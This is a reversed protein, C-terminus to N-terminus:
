RHIGLEEGLDALAEKADKAIGDANYQANRRAILSASTMVDRDFRMKQYSEADQVVLAAKGNVTLVHPDGTQQLQAVLQKANRQFESLSHIDTPNIM